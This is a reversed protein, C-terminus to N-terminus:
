NSNNKNSRPLLYDDEPQESIESLKIIKEELLQEVEYIIIEDLREPIKGSYSNAVSEIYESITKM